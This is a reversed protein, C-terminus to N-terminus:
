LYVETEELLVFPWSYSNYVAKIEQPATSNALFMDWHVPFVSEIGVESALGFAERISMNGVIGRRRRFFNNENVPLLAINITPLAHLVALLEDCVSTDGALYLTRNNYTFLYGVAKPQGDCDLSITPHASPISEVLLDNGLNFQSLPPSFIRSKHIGWKILQKRVRM